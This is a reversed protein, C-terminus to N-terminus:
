QQKMGGEARKKTAKKKTKAAKKKTTKAWRERDLDRGRNKKVDERDHQGNCTKKQVEM